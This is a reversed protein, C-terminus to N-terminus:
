TSASTVKAHGASPTGHFTGEATAAPGRQAIVAEASAAELRPDPRTRGVWLLVLGLSGALAPWYVYRYIGVPLIPLYGLIYVVSSLGLARVPMAFRGSGPRVSIVLGVALWFWGRFLMPLDEVLGTVYRRLTDELRPSAIRLGLDNEVIRGSYQYRTSFLLRSFVQVRYEIYARPHRAMEQLWLTRIEDTHAVATFPGNAGKGYCFWYANSILRKRGCEEAAAVLKDRLEQSVDAARLEAIGPVNLLDDLMVQSVQSTHVPRAISSIALTPVVVAVVLAGSALVWTRRTPRPWFALVLMAFVPLTAFVANKRVLIAYALFVLGVGLLVWRVAPRRPRRRVATMAVSTAALLAFAMHTDKWVVGVFTLVHPTLALGLVALSAARSGTLDWACWALVFLSAWLVLSQLAALAAPTGTTTILARWLLSMVPPHWDSLPERGLAQELQYVADGSSVYGPSFVSVTGLCGLGALVGLAL